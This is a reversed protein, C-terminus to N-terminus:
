AISSELENMKHQILHCAKEIANSRKMEASFYHLAKNQPASEILEKLLPAVNEAIFEDRLVLAGLGLIQIRNGNDPQDYKIPRIIQPIKARIAQAMTGIGGHHIIAKCQPLTYEFDVYDVHICSSSSELAEKGARGGVFVGPLKLLECIKRGEAFFATSDPMGTGSTFVIPASHETIFLDFIKRASEDVNDLMPFGVLRLNKPWDKPRMGFWETFLGIQLTAKSTKIFRLPIELRKRTEVYANLSKKSYLLKFAKKANHAVLIRKIFKPYKYTRGWCDPAPPSDASFISSPSLLIKIVPINFHYAAACAGNYESLTLLLSSCSAQSYERVINFAAEFTPASYLALSDINDPEWAKLSNGLHYQELTGVSRFDINAERITKEFYDNSLFTVKHGHKLLSSGIGVMPNIDGATGLAFILINM